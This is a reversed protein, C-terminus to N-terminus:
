ARELGLRGDRLYLLPVTRHKGTRNGLTTLLLVDIGALRPGLFGNTTRYVITHLRSLAQVTVRRM